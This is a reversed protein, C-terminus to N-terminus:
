FQGFIGANPGVGSFRFSVAMEAGFVGVVIQMNNLNDLLFVCICCLGCLYLVLWVFLGHVIWFWELSKKVKDLDKPVLFVAM